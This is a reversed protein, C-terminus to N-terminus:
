LSWLLTEWVQSTVEVQICFCLKTVMSDMWELMSKNALKLARARLESQELKEKLTNIDNRQQNLWWFFKDQEKDVYADRAQNSDAIAKAYVKVKALERKM